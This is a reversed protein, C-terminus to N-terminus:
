PLSVAVWQQGGDTTQLLRPQRRCTPQCLTDHGHLWGVTATAWHITDITDPLLAAGAPNLLGWQRTNSLYVPPRVGLTLPQDLHRDAQHHWTQGGDATVYFAVKTQDADYLTVAIIGTQVDEFVPLTYAAPSTTAVVQQRQWSQGGDRTQYLESDTPGGVLWGVSESIFRVEGWVPLRGPQWTRGGDNTRFLLGRSFNLGATIIEDAPPAELGPIPLIPLTCPDPQYQIIPLYIVAPTPTPTPTPTTLATQGAVPPTMSIASMTMLIVGILAYLRHTPPHTQM